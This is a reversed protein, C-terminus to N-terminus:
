VTIKMSKIFENDLLKYYYLKCNKSDSKFISLRLKNM